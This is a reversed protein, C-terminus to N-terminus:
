TNFVRQIDHIIEEVNDPHIFYANGGMENIHDVYWQQNPRKKETSSRKCEFAFYKNKYLMTLDPIGQIYGPDNKMVISGPFTKELREILSQQFQSELM